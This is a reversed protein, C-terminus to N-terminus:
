LLTHCTSLSPRVQSVQGSREERSEHGQCPPGPTERGLCWSASGKRTLHIYFGSQFFYCLIHIHTYIVCAQTYRHMCAYLSTHIHRLAHMCALKHTHRYIHVYLNLKYTYRYMYAYLSRHTHAHLSTHTHRLAHMCVFTHTQAHTCVPKTQIHTYICSLMHTHRHVHTYVLKHIYKHGM